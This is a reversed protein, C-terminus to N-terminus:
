AADRVGPRDPVHRRGDGGDLTTISSNDDVVFFITAGWSRQRDPARQHERRLERARCPHLPSGVVSGNLLAVLDRRLLFTDNPNNALGSVVDAGEIMLTDVGDDPAGNDLVNIVADGQGALSVKYQDSNGEGHLNLVAGIGNANTRHFLADIQNDNATGAAVLRFQADFGPDDAAAEVNVYFFDNGGQGHITTIGGISSIAVTDDRQNM